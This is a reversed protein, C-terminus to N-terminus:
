EGRYEPERKELFAEVGEYLDETAFALSWAYREMELGADLNTRNGRNVVEKLISFVKPSHRAMRECLAISEDLLDDSAVVRNVLGLEHARGADIPDGTFMMEKAVGMGVVDPLRQTGGGGPIAGIALESQGLKADETAVRVDCCLSIELGGGMAYGDIAAVVPKQIREVYNYLGQTYQTYAMADFPDMELFLRIDSGSIFTDGAGRLVIGRVADDDEVDELASRLEERTEVDMANRIEPRVVSVIAVDGVREVEVSTEAM